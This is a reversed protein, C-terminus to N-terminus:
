YKSQWKQMQRHGELIKHITLILLFIFVLIVLVYWTIKMSCFFNKVDMELHLSIHICNHPYKMIRCTQNISNEKAPDEEMIPSRTTHTKINCTVNYGELHDATPAVTFNFHQCPSHSDNAMVEMSGQMIFVKCKGKSTQEQSILEINGKFECALCLSCMKFENTIDQCIRIFNQFSSHNLFIAMRTQTEKVKPTKFYDPLILIFTIVIALLLKLLATKTM